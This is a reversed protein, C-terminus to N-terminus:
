RSLQESVSSKPQTGAWVVNPMADQRAENSKQAALAQSSRRELEKEKAVVSVEEMMCCSCLYTKECRGM